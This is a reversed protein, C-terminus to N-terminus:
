IVSLGLPLNRLQEIVTQAAPATSYAKGENRAKAGFRM